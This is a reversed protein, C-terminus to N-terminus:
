SDRKEWSLLPKGVNKALLQLLFLFGFTGKQQLTGTRVPPVTLDTAAAAVATAAVVVAAAAAV